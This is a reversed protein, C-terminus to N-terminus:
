YCNVTLMLMFCDFGLGRGIVWSFWEVLLDLWRAFKVVARFVVLSLRWCLRCSGQGFSSAYKLLKM